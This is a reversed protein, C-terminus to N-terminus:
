GDFRFNLRVDHGNVDGPDLRVPRFDLHVDGPFGALVLRANPEDSGGISVSDYHLGPVAEVEYKNNDYSFNFTIGTVEVSASSVTAPKQPGHVGKKYPDEVALKWRAVDNRSDWAAVFFSELIGFIGGM